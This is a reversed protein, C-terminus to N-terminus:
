PKAQESASAAPAQSKQALDAEIAQPTQASHEVKQATDLRVIVSM